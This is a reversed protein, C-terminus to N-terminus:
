CTSEHCKLAKGRSKGRSPLNEELIAAQREGEGGKVCIDVEWHLKEQWCVIKFQGGGVSGLVM